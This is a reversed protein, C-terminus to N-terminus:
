RAQRKGTRHRERSTHEMSSNLRATPGSARSRSSSRSRSVYVPSRNWTHIAIISYHEMLCALVHSYLRTEQICSAGHNIGAVQGNVRQKAAAMRGAAKPLTSSYPLLQDQSGTIGSCVVEKDKTKETAKARRVNGKGRSLCYLILICFIAHGSGNVVRWDWRRCGRRGRCTM